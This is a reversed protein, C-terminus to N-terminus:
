PAGGALGRGALMETVWWAPIREQELRNRNQLHALRLFLSTEEERLGPPPASLDQPADTRAAPFREFTGEDMLFSEVGPFTQRLGALIRFGHTDIDGWYLIRRQAMWACSRLSHAAFGSGFVGAAGALDPLALFLDITAFSSKNEVVILTRVEPFGLKGMESVPVAIDQIGSLYRRSIAPDLFRFRVTPEVRRLGYREEFSSAGTDVRDPPLVLDLLERLIGKSGEVFKTDEVAPIERVFVGPRPHEAFWRLVAVIRKWDGAHALIREPHRASWERLSPFADLLVRLQGLYCEVEAKKNLFSLLSAPDPFYIRCPFRQNGAKRDSREEWEIHYSPRGGEASKERLAAIEKRLEAYREAAEGPRVKAFRIEVPFLDRGDVLASLYERYRRGARRRVEEPGVM